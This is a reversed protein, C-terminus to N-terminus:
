RRRDENKRRDNEVQDKMERLFPILFTTEKGTNKISQNMEALQAAIERLMCACMALATFDSIFLRKNKFAEFDGEETPGIARIEDPTM